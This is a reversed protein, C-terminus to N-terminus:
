QGPLPRLNKIVKPKPFFRVGFTVGGDTCSVMDSWCRESQNIEQWTIGDEQLIEAVVEIGVIYSGRDALSFTFETVDVDAMGIVVPNVKGPDTKFNVLFLRSKYREGEYAINGPDNQWAVTFQNATKWDVSYAPVSVSLLLISLLIIIFNKM